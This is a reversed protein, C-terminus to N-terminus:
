KIVIKRNGHIYLGSKTPKGSLKVGNLTYWSDDNVENVEKVEIVGTTQDDFNLVFERAEYTGLDFYARCANVHGGATPWYLTNNTGVFLISKNETDWVIPNYTGKFTGGTFDANRMTKDITVGTFVPNEITTGLYGEKGKQEGWKIIFPTGAPITTANNFNLTLTTGTLNSESTNLTMAVVNDGALPGSTTSVQFPLCLTNWDGDKYLTRDALTVDTTFSEFEDLLDANKTTASADDDALVLAYSTKFAQASMWDSTSNGKKRNKISRILFEYQTDAELGEISTLTANIDTVINWDSVTQPQYIEIDDVFLYSKKQSTYQICIYRTGEPVAEQFETWNNNKISIEEGFTFADIDDTTASYGVKFTETYGTNYNKYYFLLETGEAVHVMKPSVLYQPTSSHNSNFAFGAYGSHRAAANGNGGTGSVCEQLTWGDYGNEFGQSIISKQEATRYALQYSDGFGTWSITADHATTQNIHADYPTPNGHTIVACQDWPTEFDNASLGNVEILYSVDEKLKDITYPSTADKVVTWETNNCYIGVNDILMNYQDNSQDRFAIYGTQGEYASLDVSVETWTNTADGPSALEVFSGVNKDTTSVYVKYHDPWKANGVRVWYKLTGGLKVQPSILWNDVNYATGNYYSWVIAGYNGEYSANNSGNNQILQWDTIGQGGGNSVVTWADLGDEFDDFFSMESYRLQYSNSEGTWSVTATTPTSTISTITPKPYYLFTTQPIFNCQSPTEGTNYATLSAGTVTKGYFKKGKSKGKVPNEFDILLNGGKYIYPTKFTIIMMRTNDVKSLTLAGEYVLDANSVSEFASITTYNVEKVYVNVNGTPMDDGNLDTLYYILGYIGGGAMDTLNAAPIVYQSRTNYNLNVGAIPVLGSEATGNYVTLTKQAKMSGVFICLLLMTFLRFKNQYMNNWIINDISMATKWTTM